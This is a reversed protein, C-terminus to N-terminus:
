KKEVENMYHRENSACAERNIEILPKLSGCECGEGCEIRELCKVQYEVGLLFGERSRGSLYSYQSQCKKIQEVVDAINPCVAINSDQRQNHSIACGGLGTLASLALAYLTQKITM